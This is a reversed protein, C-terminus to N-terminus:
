YKEARYDTPTIRNLKKFIKTFSSADKYGLFNSIEQISMATQKLLSKAEMLVFEDIFKKGNKGLESQLVESLYKPTIHLRSAYFAVEKHETYYEAILKRFQVIVRERASTTKTQSKDDLEKHISKVLMLLAHVLGPIAHADDKLEKISGFLTSVKKLQEKTLSIVHRGGHSFFDLSRLFASNSYGNFLEETFYVTDHVASYNSMWTCVLGPGITTLCGGKIEYDINGIKVKDFSASTYTIGLGYTFTRFPFSVRANKYTNNNALFFPLNFDHNNQHKLYEYLSLPKLNHKKIM